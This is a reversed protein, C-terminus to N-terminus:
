RMLEYDEFRSEVEHVTYNAPIRKSAHCAELIQFALFREVCPQITAVAAASFVHAM